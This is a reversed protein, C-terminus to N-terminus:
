DYVNVAGDATGSGDDIYWINAVNVFEILEVIIKPIQEVVLRVSSKVLCCCEHKSKGSSKVGEAGIQYLQYRWHFLEDGDIQPFLLCINNTNGVVAM